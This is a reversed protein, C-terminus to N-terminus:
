TGDSSRGQQHKILHEEIQRNIVYKIICDKDESQIFVFKVGLAWRSCWFCWWPAKKSGWRTEALVKIKNQFDPLNFVLSFRASKQLLKRVAKKSLFSFLLYMGGGSIDKAWAKRQPQAVPRPLDLPVVEFSVPFEQNLRPYERLEKGM